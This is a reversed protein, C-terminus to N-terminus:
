ILSRSEEIIDKLMKILSIISMISFYLMLLSLLLNYLNFGHFINMINFISSKLLIVGFYIFFIVAVLSYIGMIMNNKLSYENYEDYDINRKLIRNILFCISHSIRQNLNYVGLCDSLIWYGDFKLLPNLNYIANLIIMKNVNLFITNDTLIYIITYFITVVLQFYLGSIDVVIRQYQQLHWTDDVDVFLIPSIFYMGIGAGKPIVGYKISASIHGMEHFISDIYLLIWFIVVSSWGGKENNFNINNDKLFIFLINCIIMLSFFIWCKKSYMFSFNKLHKLINEKFLVKKFVLRMHDKSQLNCEIESFCGIDNLLEFIFMDHNDLEDIDFEREQYQNIFNYIDENVVYKKNHLTLIWKKDKSKCDMLSLSTHMLKYLNNDKVNDM